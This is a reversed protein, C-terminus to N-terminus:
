NIPELVMPVTLKIFVILVGTPLVHEHYSHRWPQTDFCPLQQGLQQRLRGASILVGLRALHHCMPVLKLLVHARNSVDTRRHKTISYLDVHGHDLSSARTLRITPGSMFAASQGGGGVFFSAALVLLSHHMSRDMRARGRCPAPAARHPSTPTGSDKANWPCLALDDTADLTAGPIM